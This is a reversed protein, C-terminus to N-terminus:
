YWCSKKGNPNPKCVVGRAALGTISISASGGTANYEMEPNHYAMSANVTLRIEVGDTDFLTNSIKISEWYGAADFTHILAYTTANNLTLSCSATSPDPSGFDNHGYILVSSALVSLSVYGKGYSVKQTRANFSVAGGSSVVLNDPASATASAGLSGTYGISEAAPAKGYVTVINSGSAWNYSYSTVGWYSDTAKLRYQCTEPILDIYTNGSTVNDAITEVDVDSVSRVISYTVGSAPTFTPVVAIRWGTYAHNLSGASDARAVSIGGTAPTAVVAVPFSGTSSVTGAPNTVYCYLTVGTAGSPATWAITNTGQGSTITGSTVSWTYTSSAPQSTSTSAANGTSSTLVYLPTTIVPTVPPLVLAVTTSATKTGDDAATATITYTSTTAPATWNVTNVGSSNSNTGFSGAAGSCSWTVANTTGGSATTSFTIATSQTKTSNAPTITGASVVQPTVGLTTTTVTGGNNVSLLYTRLGVWSATISSTATGTAPCTLSGTSDGSWTLTGTGSSYTPTLTFTGNHAPTTSTATLGLGTVVFYAYGTATTSTYSNGTATATITYAQGNTSPTPATWVGGSTISGGSASWTIGTNYLNSVSTSFTQTNGATVNASSPSIASISPTSVTVSISATGYPNTVVIDKSGYSSMQPVTFSIVYNNSASFSASVGGVTVGTASTYNSGALTYPGGITVTSVGFGGSLVASITPTLTQPTVTRTATATDGASNTVTLTYTRTGSWSATISSTASGSSPCTETGTSDGSWTLTGTGNSYTPTLTFTGGSAPTANSATLSTAVPAAILTASTTRTQTGDDNSTATITYPSSGISSPATWTVTNVGSSLSNSGFSGVPCSWTVTNVSGGSVSVHFDKTLGVTVNPNAPTISGMLVTIVMTVESYGGFSSMFGQSEHYYSDFIEVQTSSTVSYYHTGMAPYIPSTSYGYDNYAVVVSSEAAYVNSSTPVAYFGLGDDDYNYGGYFTIGTGYIQPSAQDCGSYAILTPM